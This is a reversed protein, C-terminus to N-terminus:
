FHTNSIGKPMPNKGTSTLAMMSRWVSHHYKLAKYYGYYAIHSVTHKPNKLYYLLIQLLGTKNRGKWDKKKFIFCIYV